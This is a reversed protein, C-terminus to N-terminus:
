NDISSEGLNHSQDVSFKRKRPEDVSINIVIKTIGLMLLSCPM